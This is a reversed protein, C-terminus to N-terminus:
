EGIGKERDLRAAAQADILLPPLNTADRTPYRREKASRAALVREVAKPSFRYRSGARLYPVRGSNAEARLWAATVHLRRAMPGLLLLRAHTSEM